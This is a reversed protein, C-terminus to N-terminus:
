FIYQFSMNVSAFAPSSSFGVGNNTVNTLAKKYQPTLSIGYHKGLEYSLEIGAIGSAFVNKYANRERQSFTITNLQDSAGIISNSLLFDATAGMMLAIAFKADILKYSLQLPVSLIEFDNYLNYPSTINIVKGEAASAASSAGHYPFLDDSNLDRLVASSESTSRFNGYTLGSKILFRKGLNFGFNLGYSLSLNSRMPANSLNEITQRENYGDNVNNRTAIGSTNSVIATSLVSNGESITANPNFNGSGFLVNAEFNVASRENMKEVESIAFFSVQELNDPNDSLAIEDLTPKMRDKHMLNVIARNKDINMLEDEVEMDTFSAIANVAGAVGEGIQDQRRTNDVRKISLVDNIIVPFKAGKRNDTFASNAAESLEIAQWDEGLFTDSVSDIVNYYLSVLAILIVAAAINRYWIARRRMQKNEARLLNAEIADWVATSPEFNADKFKGKLNRNFIDKSYEKM